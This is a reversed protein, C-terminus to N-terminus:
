EDEIVEAVITDDTEEEPTSTATLNKRLELMKDRLIDGAPRQDAVTVDIEIGGRIGARDLIDRSAGLRVTESLSNEALDILLDAAYPASQKISLRARELAAATTNGPGTTHVRCLRTRDGKHWMMCRVNDSKIFRCRGPASVLNPRIPKSGPASELRMEEVEMYARTSPCVWSPCIINSGYALLLEMGQKYESNPDAPNVMIDTKMSISHLRMAAEMEQSIVEILDSLHGESTFLPEWYLKHGRLIRRNAASDACIGRDVEAIGYQSLDPRLNVPTDSEFEVPSAPTEISDMTVDNCLVFNDPTPDFVRTHCWM